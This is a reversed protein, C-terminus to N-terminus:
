APKEEQTEAWGKAFLDAFSPEEKGSQEKLVQDQTEPPM